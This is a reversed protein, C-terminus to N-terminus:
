QLTRPDQHHSAPKNSIKNPDTFIRFCEALNKKSTITPDFLITDNTARATINHEKRTKTLSLNGHQHGQYMPNLKPPILDIIKKAEEACV